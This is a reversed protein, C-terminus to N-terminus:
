NPKKSKEDSPKLLDPAIFVVGLDTQLKDIAANTRELSATIKEIANMTAAEDSGPQALTNILGKLVQSEAFASQVLARLIGM